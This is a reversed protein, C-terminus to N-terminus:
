FFTSLLSIVSKDVALVAEGSGTTAYAYGAPTTSGVAFHIPTASKEPWLLLQVAPPELGYESLNDPSDIVFDKIDQGILEDLFEKVLNFDVKEGDVNNKRWELDKGKVMAISGSPKRIEIRKLKEPEFFFLERSRLENAERPITHIIDEELIFVSDRDSMTVYYGRMEPNRKGISMTVTKQVDGSLWFLLKIDPKSLGYKSLDDKSEAVFKVVEANHFRGLLEFVKIHDARAKIPKELEWKDADDPLKVRISSDPRQIVLQDIMVPVIRLVTKDRFYLADKDAEARAYALVRYITKKGKLQAFAVGKSPARDGFVITHETLEKGTKLTVSVTPNTLGFEAVREPSPDYDMVYEADNRADTVYGLFKEVAEDDAKAELPKVIKWGEDWRELEIFSNEKKLVIALVNKPYFPFLRTEEDKKIEEVRTKEYDLYSYGGIAALVIVWIFTTKFYRM